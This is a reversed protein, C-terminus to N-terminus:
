RNSSTTLKSFLWVFLISFFLSPYINVSGGNLNAFYAFFKGCFVNIFAGLVSGAVSLILAMWFKGLISIRFVFFMVLSVSLAIILYTSSAFLFDKLM